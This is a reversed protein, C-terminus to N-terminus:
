RASVSFSYVPVILSPCLVALSSASPTSVAATGAVCTLSSCTSRATAFRVPSISCTGGPTLAILTAPSRAYLSVRAPVGGSSAGRRTV